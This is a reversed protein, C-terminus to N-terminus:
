MANHAPTFAVMGKPKPKRVIFWSAVFKADHIRNGM